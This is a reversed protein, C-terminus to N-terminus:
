FFIGYLKKKTKNTIDNLHYKFIINIKEDVSLRLIESLFYYFFNCKRISNDIIDYSTMM